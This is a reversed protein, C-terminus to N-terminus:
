DVDFVFVVFGTCDVEDTPVVLTDIAGSVCAVVEGACDVDM